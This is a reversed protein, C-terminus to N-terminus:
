PRNINRGTIKLRLIEMILFVIMNPLALVKSHLDLNVVFTAVIKAISSPITRMVEIERTATLQSKM